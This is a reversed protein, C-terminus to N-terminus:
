ILKIKGSDILEHIMKGPRIITEQPEPEDQHELFYYRVREWTSPNLDVGTVKFITAGM